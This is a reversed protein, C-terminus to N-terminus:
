LELCVRLAYITCSSHVLRNLAQFIICIPSLIILLIKILPKFGLKLKISMYYTHLCALGANSGQLIILLIKVICIYIYICAYM